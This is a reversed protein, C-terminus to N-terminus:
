RFLDAFAGFFTSWFSFPERVRKAIKKKLKEIQNIYTSKKSCIDSFGEIEQNLLQYVQEIFEDQTVALSQPYIMMSFVESDNQYRFELARDDNIHAFLETIRARDFWDRYDACIHTRCDLPNSTEFHNNDPSRHYNKFTWGDKYLASCGSVIQHINRLNRKEDWAYNMLDIELACAKDAIRKKVYLLDGNMKLESVVPFYKTRNMDYKISKFSEWSKPRNRKIHEGLDDFHAYMKKYIDQIMARDTQNKGSKLGLIFTFLSVVISTFLSILITKETEPM